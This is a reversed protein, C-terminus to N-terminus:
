IKFITIKKKKKNFKGLVYCDPKDLEVGCKMLIQEYYSNATRQSAGVTTSMTNGDSRM